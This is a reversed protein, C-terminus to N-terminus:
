GTAAAVALRLLGVFDRAAALEEAAGAADIVFSEDYDAAERFTQLRALLRSSAAPFTGPKVFHLGFLHITGQHSRPELGHASLLARAAHFCAFYARTLAIRPLGIALVAEAARLEEDARALEDAASEARGADTM